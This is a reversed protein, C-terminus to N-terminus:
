KANNKRGDWLLEGTVIERVICKTIDWGSYGVKDNVVFGILKGQPTCCIGDLHYNYDLSLNYALVRNGPVSIAELIRIAAQKPDSVTADSAQELIKKHAPPMPVDDKIKNVEEPTMPTGDPNNGRSRQIEEVTRRTYAPKVTNPTNDSIKEVRNWQGACQMCIPHGQTNSFTSNYMPTSCEACIAYNCGKMNQLKHRVAMNTKSADLKSQCDTCVPQDQEDKSGTGVEIMAWCIACAKKEYEKYTSSKETGQIAKVCENCYAPVPDTEKGDFDFAQGCLECRVKLM